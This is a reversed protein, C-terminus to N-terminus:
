PQGGDAFAARVLALLQNSDFGADRDDAFRVVLLKESPIVFLAQGWHGLAAFTDPPAAPWAAPLGSHAQNLWWHGGPIGEAPTLGEGQFPRLMADMWEAEILRRDQWRGGRQMLLGVRALDRASLYLYSSAVLTGQADREWTASRMGLPEFLAQWPYDASREGLRAHLMAALLNSDGSSYLFHSGPAHRAPHAAAFAGMDQHGRTYLMAVVSSRLPAFEYTEQWALGSSWNLLHRVSVQPHQQMPPYHRALPDDLALLGEGAARALVCAFVSKSASWILQPTDASRGGAYREFVIEGDRVVLLADSRIGERSLDDRPPFAYAQLARSAPTDQLRVPWDPLPWREACALSPFVCLSLLCLPRLNM